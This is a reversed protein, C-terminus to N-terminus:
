FKFSHSNECFNLLLSGRYFGFVVITGDFKQMFNDNQSSRWVFFSNQLPEWCYIRGFSLDWPSTIQPFELTKLLTISDYSGIKRLTKFRAKLRIRFGAAYTDEINVVRVYSFLVILKNWFNSHSRARLFAMFEPDSTIQLFKWMKAFDLTM